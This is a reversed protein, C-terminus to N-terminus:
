RLSGTQSGRAWLIIKRRLDPHSQLLRLYDVEEAAIKACAAEKGLDPPQVGSRYVSFDEWGAADGYVMPAVALKRLIPPPTRYGPKAAVKADERAALRLTEESAPRFGLKRYFWFAGSDIAEENEHGLQYPDVSFCTVGLQEGLLKLVRAYLWATEGDRFTYFLNFGIEMREALSLGEVYGMPVGNKFFMGSHYARLPLRHDPPVGFFYLDVGRGLDAHYVHKADPHQFGYLERYRSASADVIAGLVAQARSVSLLNAPIPPAAFETGISVDSRKLFPSQHYFIAQGPLRLQSRSGCSDDLSWRLPIELLDYTRPDIKELVQKLSLQAKEFWRRSDVHPEVAYEEYAMPVLQRLVSSLRDSNAYNEWDIQVSGGHTRVLGRAFDYSYGTSISTGAIGSIELDDFPAPDVGRMRDAFSFLIRDAAKVVGPSAPFARLFLVTEHLRILEAPTRFRTEAMTALLGAARRAAERGFQGKLQALQDLARMRVLTAHTAHNRISAVV